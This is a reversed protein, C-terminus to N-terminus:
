RLSRRRLVATRQVGGYDRVIDLLELHGPAAARLWEGQDYGIELLLHAGTPLRGSKELLRRLVHRGRDSSFLAVGPEFERVGPATAPDEPDIYPPNAVVLDFRDLKIASSLDARVPVVRRDVGHREVNARLVRLAPFSVDSALLRAGPLELALTVAICGSGTGVDLIRPRDPLELALAAEVLHETEPRPILVRPDVFFPRGYFEQEGFLYAVPEGKRRREVLARFRAALDDPVSQETRARVSAESLGLVHGLLLHAERSPLEVASSALHQRARRLLEGVTM